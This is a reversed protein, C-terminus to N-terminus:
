ERQQDTEVTRDGGIIWIIPKDKYRKALFEGYHRANEPTFIGPQQQSGNVHSGWTPLLGIFMGRREAMNVVADVDKFYAENPRTPDNDILPLHGQRNPKGLGDLEALVVAQIVNFGRARRNELYREAEKLDLRHFLEWATDGLWFFPTGNAHVLFRKNESVKLPGDSLNVSPSVGSQGALMAATALAIMFLSKM